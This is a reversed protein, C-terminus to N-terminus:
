FCGCPLGVVGTSPPPFTVLGGVTMLDFKVSTTLTVWLGVGGVGTGILFTGVALGLISNAAGAATVRLGLAVLGGLLVVGLVEICVTGGPVGLMLGVGAMGDVALSVGAATCLGDVV